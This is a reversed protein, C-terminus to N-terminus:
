NENIDGVKYTNFVFVFNGSPIFIRGRCPFVFVCGVRSVEEDFVLGTGDGAVGWVLVVAVQRVM